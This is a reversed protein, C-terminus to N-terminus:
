ARKVLLSVMEVQLDVQERFLLVGFHEDKEAFDAVLEVEFDAVIRRHFAQGIDRVRV